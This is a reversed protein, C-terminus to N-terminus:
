LPMSLWKGPVLLAVSAALAAAMGYRTILLAGGATCTKRWVRRHAGDRM